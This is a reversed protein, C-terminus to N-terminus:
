QDDVDGAGHEADNVDLTELGPLWDFRTRWMPSPRASLRMATMELMEAGSRVVDPSPCGSRRQGAAFCSRIYRARRQWLECMGINRCFASTRDV